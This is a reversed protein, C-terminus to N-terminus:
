FARINSTKLSERVHKKINDVVEDSSHTGGIDPTQIKDISLTQTIADNIINAHEDKDLYRLLDVSANLMATPNLNNEDLFTLHRSGAEFLACTGGYNQGSMLGPGGILGCAINSLINGYLNPTIIVDFIHPKQVLQMTCNDIIMANVEIQPYDNAVNKVVEMFLGDSLKMINAKHVITVKKRNNKLAFDFTWRAFRETNEATIIKLSEVLGPKTEHELMGYEGETNQRCIYLDLNSYRCRINKYSKVHVLCTFLDLETRLAVNSSIALNPSAINGKLGVGNRHMSTIAMQAFVNTEQENESGNYSIVEFDIPVRATKYVDEVYSMLKPGPNVGTVFQDECTGSSPARRYM